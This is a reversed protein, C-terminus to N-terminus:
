SLIFDDDNHNPHQNHNELYDKLIEDTVNGTSWAGYGIGWFHGGWYTGKLIDKYELLLKRGSRGKLKRVMDSVSLKPPYSLHLHVHEAGVAGKLIRIDNADATQRILERCRKQIEGKLVRKRYKTIWILHVKLNYITHSGKRNKIM